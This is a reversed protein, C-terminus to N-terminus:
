KTDTPAVAISMLFMALAFLWCVEDNEAQLLSILQKYEAEKSQFQRISAEQPVNTFFFAKFQVFPGVQELLCQQQVDDSSALVASLKARLREIEEQLSIVMDASIPGPRSSQQRPAHPSVGALTRSSSPSMHLAEDDENRVIESAHFLLNEYLHRAKELRLSM